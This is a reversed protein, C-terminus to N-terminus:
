RGTAQTKIMNNEDLRKARRPREHVAEARFGASFAKL